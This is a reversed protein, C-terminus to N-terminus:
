PKLRGSIREMGNRSAGFIGAQVRFGRDPNEIASERAEGMGRFSPAHQHCNPKLSADM